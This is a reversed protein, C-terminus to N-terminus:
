YVKSLQLPRRPQCSFYFASGVKLLGTPTAYRHELLTANFYYAVGDLKLIFIRIDFESPM